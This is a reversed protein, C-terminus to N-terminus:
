WNGYDPGPGHDKAREEELLAGGVRMILRLGLLPPFFIAAIMFYSGVSGLHFSWAYCAAGIMAAIVAQLAAQRVHV